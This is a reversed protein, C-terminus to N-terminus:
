GGITMSESRRLHDAVIKTAAAWARERKIIVEPLNQKVMVEAMAESNRSEFELWGAFREREADTLLAGGPPPVTAFDAM